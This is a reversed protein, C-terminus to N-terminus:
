VRFGLRHEGGCSVHARFVIEELHSLDDVRFELDQVRCGLGQVRSGLVEVKLGLEVDYTDHLTSYASCTCLLINTATSSSSLPSEKPHVHLTEPGNRTSPM